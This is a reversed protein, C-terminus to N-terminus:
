EGGVDVGLRQIDGYLSHTFLRTFCRDAYTFIVVPKPPAVQTYGETSHWIEFPWQVSIQKIMRNVTAGTAIMDDVIGYTQIECHSKTMELGLGHSDEDPKRVIGFGIGLEHALADGVFMGSIGSVFLIDPLTPLELAQYYLGEVAARRAERNLSGKLYQSHSAM